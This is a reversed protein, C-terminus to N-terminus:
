LYGWCKCTWRMEPWRQILKARNGLEKVDNYVNNTNPADKAEKGRRSSGVHVKSHFSRPPVAKSVKGIGFTAHSFTIGGDVDDLIHKKQLLTTQGEQVDHHFHSDVWNGLPGWCVFSAM